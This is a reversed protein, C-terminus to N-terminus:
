RAIGPLYSKYPLVRRLRYAETMDAVTVNHGGGMISDPYLGEPWHPLGVCHGVEHGTITIRRWEPENDWTSQRMGIYCSPAPWGYMDQGMPTAWAGAGPVSLEDPVVDFEWGGGIGLGWLALAAIFVELPTM